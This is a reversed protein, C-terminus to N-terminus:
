SSRQLLVDPRVPHAPVNVVPLEFLEKGLHATMSLESCSLESGLTGLMSACVTVMLM